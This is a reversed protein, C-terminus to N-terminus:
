VKPISGKPDFIFIPSTETTEGARLHELMEQIFSSRRVSRCPEEHPPKAAEMEADETLKYGAAKAAQDFAVHFWEIWKQHKSIGYTPWNRRILENSLRSTFTDRVDTSTGWAMIILRVLNRLRTLDNLTPMPINLLDSEEFLAKLEIEVQERKRQLKKNLKKSGKSM